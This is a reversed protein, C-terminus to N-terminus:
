PGTGALDSTGVCPWAPLGPSPPAQGTPLMAAAGAISTDGSGDGACFRSTVPPGQDTGSSMQGLPRGNGTVGRRWSAPRPKPVGPGIIRPLATLGQYEALWCGTVRKFSVRYSWRSGRYSASLASKGPEPRDRDPPLRPLRVGARWREAAPTQRRPVRVSPGAPQPRARRPM